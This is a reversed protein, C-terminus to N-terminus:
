DKMAVLLSELINPCRRSSSQNPIHVPIWDAIFSAPTIKPTASSKPNLLMASLNDPMQRALAALPLASQVYNHKNVIM